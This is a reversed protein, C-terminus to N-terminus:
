CLQLDLRFAIFTLSIAVNQRFHTFFLILLESPITEFNLLEWVLHRWLHQVSAWMAQLPTQQEHEKAQLLFLMLVDKSHLASTM